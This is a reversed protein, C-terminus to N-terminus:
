HSLIRQSKPAIVRQAQTPLDVQAEGATGEAAPGGGEFVSAAGDLLWRRRLRGAQDGLIGTDYLEVYRHETWSFSSSQVGTRYWFSVM